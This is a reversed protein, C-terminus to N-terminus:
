SVQEVSPDPFNRDIALLESRKNHSEDFLPVPSGQIQGALYASLVLGAFHAHSKM